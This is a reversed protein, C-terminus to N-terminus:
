NPVNCTISNYCSALHEHELRGMIKDMNVITIRGLDLCQKIEENSSLLKESHTTKKIVNVNEFIMRNVDERPNSEFLLVHAVTQLGADDLVYEYVYPVVWSIKLPLSEEYAYDYTTSITIEGRVTTSGDDINTIDKIDNSYERRVFYNSDNMIGTLELQTTTNTKM